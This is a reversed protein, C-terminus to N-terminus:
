RRAGKVGPLENEDDGRGDGTDHGSDVLHKDGGTMLIMILLMIVGVIAAMDM